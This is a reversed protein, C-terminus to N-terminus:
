TVGPAVANVRIGLPGLEAALLRTLHNLGAKSAGYPALGPMVGQAAVTSINVISGKSESLYPVADRSLTIPALLNTKLTTEIDEDTLETFSKQYGVGANNVLIDLKGFKTIIAQLANKRDDAKTVDAQVYKINEFAQSVEKLPAERRGTILVKAGKQAFSEAIARGIGTGGGTILVAKRNLQDM